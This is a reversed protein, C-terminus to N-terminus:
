TPFILTHKLNLKLELRIYKSYSVRRGAISLIIFNRSTGDYNLSFIGGINLMAVLKDLPQTQM